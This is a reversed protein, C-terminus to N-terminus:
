PVARDTARFGPVPLAPVASTPTSPCLQLATFVAITAEPVGEQTQTSTVRGSIQRVQAAAFQASLLSFLLATGCVRLAM